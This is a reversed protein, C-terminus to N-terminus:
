KRTAMGEVNEWIWNWGPNSADVSRHGGPMARKWDLGYIGNVWIIPQLNDMPARFGITGIAVVLRFTSLNLQM